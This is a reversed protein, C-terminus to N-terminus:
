YPIMGVEKDGLFSCIFMFIRKLIDLVVVGDLLDVISSLKDQFSRKGSIKRGDM